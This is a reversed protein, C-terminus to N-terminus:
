KAAEAKVVAILMCKEVKGLETLTSDMENSQINAGDIMITAVGYDIDNDELISRITTTGPYLKKTRNTTSGVTVQIM